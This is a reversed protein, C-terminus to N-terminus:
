ILWLSNISRVVRAVSHIFIQYLDIWVKPSNSKFFNFEVLRNDEKNSENSTLCYYGINVVFGYPKLSPQISAAVDLTQLHNSGCGGRNIYSKSTPKSM